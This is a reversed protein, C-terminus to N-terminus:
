THNIKQQEQLIEEGEKETEKTMSLDARRSFFTIM